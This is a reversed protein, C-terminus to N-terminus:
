DCVFRLGCVFQAASAVLQDRGGPGRCGELAARRNASSPTQIEKTEIRKHAMLDRNVRLPLVEHLSFWLHPSTTSASRRLARASARLM